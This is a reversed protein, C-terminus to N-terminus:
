PPLKKPSAEAVDEAVDASATWDSALLWESKSKNINFGETIEEPFVENEIQDHEDWLLLLGPHMSKTQVLIESM